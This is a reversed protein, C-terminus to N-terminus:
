KMGKRDTSVKIVRIASRALLPKLEPAYPVMAAIDARAMETLTSRHELRGALLCKACLHTVHRSQDSMALLAEAYGLYYSLAGREDLGAIEDGCLKCAIRTVFGREDVTVCDPCSLTM